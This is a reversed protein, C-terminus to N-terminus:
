IGRQGNKVGFYWIKEFCCYPFKQCIPLLAYSSKKVLALTGGQIPSFQTGIVDISISCILIVLIFMWLVKSWVKCVGLGITTFKEQLESGILHCM